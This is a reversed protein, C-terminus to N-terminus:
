FPDSETRYEVRRTLAGGKCVGPVLLRIKMEEYKKPLLFRDLEEDMSLSWDADM